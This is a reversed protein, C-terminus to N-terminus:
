LVDEWSVCRYLWYLMRHRLPTEPEMRYVRPEGDPRQGHWQIEGKNDRGVRWCHTPQLDELLYHKLRAAFRVDEVFVGSETNIFKSRPDMNFSSIFSLHDDVVMGKTHMSLTTLHETHVYTRRSPARGNLEYLEVGTNLIDPRRNAFGAMAALGSMSSLSNTLIRVRVGRQVAEQLLNLLGHQPIFYANHIVIDRKAMALADEMSNCVPSAERATILTREPPDAVFEYDTWIMRRTMGSLTRLAEDRPLATPYPCRNDAALKRKKKGIRDRLDKLKELDRGTVKAQDDVHTLPSEWYHDFATAADRVVPGTAIFDLDRSNRRQHIGFYTDGLNRGGGIMISNDAIMTKNHMRRQMRDIDGILPIPNGAFIGKLATMPNYFGVQINPHVALAASRVEKQAGVTMDLLLRVRVGRDAAALLRDAFITGSVDDSWIFYQVDLTKQAAEVMALRAMYSEKGDPLSEFGSTGRRRVTRESCAHAITEQSVLGFTPLVVADPRTSQCSVLSTLVCGWLCLCSPLNMILCHM